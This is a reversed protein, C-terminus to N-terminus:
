KRKKMGLYNNSNNDVNIDIKPLYNNLNNFMSEVTRTEDKRIGFQSKKATSASTNTNQKLFYNKNKQNSSNAKKRGNNVKYHITQIYDGLTTPNYISVNVTNM